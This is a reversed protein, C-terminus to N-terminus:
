AVALTPAAHALVTNMKPFREVVGAAVQGPHGQPCPVTVRVSVYPFQGSHRFLVTGTCGCPATAIEAEQVQSGSTCLDSM